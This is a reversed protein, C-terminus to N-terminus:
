YPKRVLLGSSEMGTLIAHLVPELEHPHKGTQVAVTSVVEDADSQTQMAQWFKGGLADLGFYTLTRTNMLLTEELPTSTSIVNASIELQQKLAM